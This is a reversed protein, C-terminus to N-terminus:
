YAHINCNSRYSIIIIFKENDSILSTWNPLFNELQYYEGYINLFQIHFGCTILISNCM